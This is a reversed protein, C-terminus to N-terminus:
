VRHLRGCDAAFPLTLQSRQITTIGFDHSGAIQNFSAQWASDPLCCARAAHIFALSKTWDVDSCFAIWEHLCSQLQTWGLTAENFGEQLKRAQRM